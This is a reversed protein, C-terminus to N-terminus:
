IQLLEEIVVGLLLYVLRCVCLRREDKIQSRGFEESYRRQQTITTQVCVFIEVTHSSGYKPRTATLISDPIRKEAGSLCCTQAQRTSGDVVGVIRSKHSRCLDVRPLGLSVSRM